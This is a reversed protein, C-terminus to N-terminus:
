SPSLGPYALQPWWDRGRGEPTLDLMNWLPWPSDVHRPSQGAEMPAGLMETSYIYRVGGERRVFVRAIPRQEGGASEAHYESNFTNESSSLLRVRRWGRGRGGRHVSQLVEAM